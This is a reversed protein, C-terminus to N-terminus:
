LFGSVLAVVEPVTKGCVDEVVLLALLWRVEHM